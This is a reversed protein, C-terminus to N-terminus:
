STPMCNWSRACDAHLELIQRLGAYGAGADDVALRVRPGLARLAGLLAEFDDIAVHETVELVVSRSSSRLASQLGSGRVLLQPSANLSIWADAPLATAAELAAEICAMELAPGVGLAAAAVFRGAPSAGDAFRTLAEYGVVRREGLMVVPQFVPAFARAAIIREIQERASADERERDHSPGLLAGAFAAFSLVMPFYDGLRDALAQSSTGMSLVGILSTAGYIPAHIAARIGANAMEASYRGDEPSTRWAELWPGSRARDLLYAGRTVPLPQGVRPPAGHPVHVALPVLLDGPALSDISMFDFGALTALQDIIAEATAVPTKGVRLRALRSALEAEQEARRALEGELERERTVDRGSAVMGLFRDRDDRLPSVVMEEEYRRGDRARNGLTGRWVQGAQVTEWMAHFQTADEGDERLGRPRLGIVDDRAFGSRREFAPNVYVVHGEADTLTIADAAQEVAAALRALEIHRARM